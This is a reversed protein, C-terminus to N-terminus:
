MKLQLFDFDCKATRLKRMGIQGLKKQQLSGKKAMWKNEKEQVEGHHLGTSKNM